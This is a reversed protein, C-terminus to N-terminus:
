GRYMHVYMCMYVSNETCVYMCVYMCVTRIYVSNETCVYMCITSHLIGFLYYYRLIIQAFNLYRGVKEQVTIDHSVM